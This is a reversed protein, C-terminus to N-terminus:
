DLAEPKWRAVGHTSTSQEVRDALQFCLEVSPFVAEISPRPRKGVSLAQILENVEGYFGQIVDEPTERGIIEELILRNEQYCRLSREPGFPSIIVACFGDGVLAYTEEVTGATPLV